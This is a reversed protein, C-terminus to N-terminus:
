QLRSVLADIESVAFGIRQGGCRTTDETPYLELVIPGSECAYHEPGNGHRHRTFTLGLMEYFRVAGVLDTTYLVILNLQPTPIDPM